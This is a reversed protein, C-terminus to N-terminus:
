SNTIGTFILLYLSIVSFTNTSEPIDNKNILSNKQWKLVQEQVAYVSDFVEINQDIVEAYFM